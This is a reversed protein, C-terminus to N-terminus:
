RGRKLLRGIEHRLREEFVIGGRKGAVLSVEENKAMQPIAPGFLREIPLRSKGTRKMVKVGNIHANFAGSVTGAGKDKRVSIKLQSKRRPNVTKPSVKFKDLGIPGGSIRVSASLNSPSSRNRTTADKVDGAKVHYKKRIEKSVSTATATVARNMARSLAAPAKGQVDGLQKQIERIRKEDINVTTVVM